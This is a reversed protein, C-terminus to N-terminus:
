QGGAKFYEFTSGLAEDLAQDLETSMRALRAQLDTMAQRDARSDQLERFLVQQIVHTNRLMDRKLTPLDATSSQQQAKVVLDMTQSLATQVVLPAAPNDRARRQAADVRDRAKQLAANRQFDDLEGVGAVLQSVLFADRRIAAARDRMMGELRELQFGLTSLSSPRVIERQAFLAPAILLSLFALTRRM